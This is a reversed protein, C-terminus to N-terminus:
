MKIKPSKATGTEHLGRPAAFKFTAFPHGVSFYCEGGFSVHGDLSVYSTIIKIIKKTTWATIALLWLCSEPRPRAKSESVLGM